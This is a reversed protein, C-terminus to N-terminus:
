LVNKLVDLFCETKVDIKTWLSYSARSQHALMPLGDIFRIGKAAALQKWFNLTEDFNYNLDIITKCDHLNLNNVIASFEPSEDITSITTANILIDASLLPEKNLSEILMPKAHIRHATVEAKERDRGVVIIDGAHLWNLMFGVARSTGGTGFIVVSKGAPDIGTEELFNMFGIANTNFGKLTGGNNVVTNVAGIIQAGESIIDMFPLIKEKYPPLINAGAINLVKLSKMAAGIDDPKVMFPVYAGRVGSQKMIESYMAPAESRFVREDSIICFLSPKIISSKGM